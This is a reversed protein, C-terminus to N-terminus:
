QLGLASRLSNWTYGAGLLLLASALFVVLGYLIRLLSFSKAATKQEVIHTVRNNWVLGGLFECALQIPVALILVWIWQGATSPIDPYSFVIWALALVVSLCIYTATFKITNRM